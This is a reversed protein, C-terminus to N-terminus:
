NRLQWDIPLAILVSVPHGQFEAPTFHFKEVARVAAEEFGPHTTEQVRVSGPEVNGNSDIVLVVTTRGTVGADRLLPPYVRQLMRQAERENALHPLVSVEEPTMPGKGGGGGPPGPDPAPPAPNPSPPGIEQGEVGIGTVDRPPLPPAHPDPPPLTTPVDEPPRPTVFDGKRPAPQDPARPPPTVPRPPTPKNPEPPVTLDVIHEAPRAPTSEAVTVFVGLLLLHAGVSAAVTRPTWVRRKRRSTVVNFM